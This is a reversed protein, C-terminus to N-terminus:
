HELLEMKSNWRLRLLMRSPLRAKRELNDTLPREETFTATISSAAKIEGLLFRALDIIHSGLDGLPRFRSSGKSTEMDSSFTPENDM